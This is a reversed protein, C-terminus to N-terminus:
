GAKHGQKDRLHNKHDYRHILREPSIDAYTGIGELEYLPAQHLFLPLRDGLAELLSGALYYHRRVGVRLVESQSHEGSDVAPDRSLLDCAEKSDGERGDFARQLPPVLRPVHIRVLDRTSGRHLPSTNTSSLPACMEIYGELDRAGLPTLAQPL